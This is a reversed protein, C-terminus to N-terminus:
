EQPVTPDVETGRMLEARIRRMLVARTNWASRCCGPAECGRLATEAHEGMQIRGGDGADDGPQLRLPDHAPDAVPAAPLRPPRLAHQLDIAVAPHQDARRDLPFADAQDGAPQIALPPPRQRDFGARRHLLRQGTQLAAGAGQDATEADIEALHAADAHPLMPQDVTVPM